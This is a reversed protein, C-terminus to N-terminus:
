PTREPALTVEASLVPELSRAIDRWFLHGLLTLLV